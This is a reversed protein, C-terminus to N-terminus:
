TEVSNEKSSKADHSQQQSKFLVVKINGNGFLAVPVEAPTFDVPVVKTFKIEPRGEDTFGADSVELHDVDDNL